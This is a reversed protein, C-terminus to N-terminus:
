LLLTQDSKESLLARAAGKECIKEIAGSFVCLVKLRKWAASFRHIEFDASMKERYTQGKPGLSYICPLQTTPLSPTFPAAIAISTRSHFFFGPLLSCSHQFINQRGTRTANKLGQDGQYSRSQLYTSSYATSYKRSLSSAAKIGLVRSATGASM